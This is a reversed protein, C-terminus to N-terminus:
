INLFYEENVLHNRKCYKALHGVDGGYRIMAYLDGVVYLSRLSRTLIMKLHATNRHSRRFPKLKSGNLPGADVGNTKVLSLIVIPFETGETESGCLITVGSDHLKSVLLRKQDNFFTIVAIKRTEIGALKVKQVLKVVADVEASNSYSYRHLTEKGPVHFWVAPDSIWVNQQLELALPELKSANETLNFDLLCTNSNFEVPFGRFIHELHTFKIKAGKGIFLISTRLPEYLDERSKLENSIKPPVGYLDGILIVSRIVRSGNVNIYRSKALATTVHGINLQSSEDFVVVSPLFSTLAAHVAYFQTTIVIEFDNTLDLCKELDLLDELDCICRIRIEPVRKKLLAILSKIRCHLVNANHENPTVCLVKGSPLICEILALCAALTTKGTGSTGTIMSLGNELGRHIANSQSESLNLWRTFNRVNEKILSKEEPYIKRRPLKEPKFDKFVKEMEQPLKQMFMEEEEHNVVSQRNLSELVNGMIEHERRSLEADYAERLQLTKSTVRTEQDPLGISNDFPNIQGLLVIFYPSDKEYPLTKKLIRFKATIREEFKMLVTKNIRLMALLESADCKIEGFKLTVLFKFDMNPNKIVQQVVSAAEVSYFEFKENYTKMLFKEARESVDSFESLSRPFTIFSKNQEDRSSKHIQYSSSPRKPQSFLQKSSFASNLNSLSTSTRSPQCVESADLFRKERVSNENLIFVRDLAETVENRAVLTSNSAITSAGALENDWDRLDGDDSSESETVPGLQSEFSQESISSMPRAVYPNRIKDPKNEKSHGTRWVKLKQPVPSKSVSLGNASLEDDKEPDYCAYYKDISEDSDSDTYDGSGRSTMQSAAYM